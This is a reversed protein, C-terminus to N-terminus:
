GGTLFTKRYKLSATFEALSIVRMRYYLNQVRVTGKKPDKPDKLVNEYFDDLWYATQADIAITSQGKSRAVAILDTLKKEFESVPCDFYVFTPHERNTGFVAVMEINTNKPEYPIRM